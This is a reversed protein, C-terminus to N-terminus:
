NKVYRGYIERVLMSNLRHGSKEASVRGILPRGLMYLDGVLDLVKHRVPEDPFRFRTGVPGNNGLVLTNKLTAGRGMGSLLLLIAERKM